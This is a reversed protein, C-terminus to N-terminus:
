LGYVRYICLGHVRYAKPVECVFVNAVMCGTLGICMEDGFGKGGLVTIRDASFFLFVFVLGFGYFRLM